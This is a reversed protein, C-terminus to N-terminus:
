KQKNQKSSNRSLLKQYLEKILKEQEEVDFIERRICAKKRRLYKRVSKPLKRKM